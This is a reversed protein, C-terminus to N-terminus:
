PCGMVMVMVMVTVTAQVTAVENATPIVMPM